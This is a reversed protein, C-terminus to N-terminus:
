KRKYAIGSKKPPQVPSFESKDKKLGKLTKALNARKGLKGGKKVAKAIKSAPIKEGMPVGLQKHLAGPKKIAKAIWNKKKKKHEKSEFSKSEKAEHKKTEKSEHKKSEKKKKMTPKEGGWGAGNSMKGGFGGYYPVFSKSSSKLTSPILKKKGFISEKFLAMTPKKFGSAKSTAMESKTAFSKGVPMRYKKKYANYMDGPNKYKKM